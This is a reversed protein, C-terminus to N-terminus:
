QERLAWWFDSFGSGLRREGIYFNHKWSIRFFLVLIFIIEVGSLSAFDKCCFQQSFFAHFVFFPM